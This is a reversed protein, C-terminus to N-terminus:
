THFRSLFIAALRRAAIGLLQPSFQNPDVIPSVLLPRKGDVRIATTKQDNIILPMLAECTGVTPQAFVFNKTLNRSLKLNVGQAHFRREM